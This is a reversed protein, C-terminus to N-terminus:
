MRVWTIVSERVPVRGYKAMQQSSNGKYRAVTISKTNWGMQAAYDSLILDVPIMEGEFRVNDVVFVITAQQSMIKSMSELHKKMDAFYAPIMTTINKNNLQKKSLADLVEVLAPHQMDLDGAKKKVEIHSRLVSHRLKHLEEFNKVFNFCLELSYTRTYDYRNLYPPSTIAITPKNAQKKLVRELSRADGNIIVPKTAKQVPKFFSRLDNEAMHIKADFADIPDQIKKSPLYRLFQGDKATYSCNELISFFLLQFISKLPENESDIVTKMQRLKKLTNDNFAIKMINVDLAVEACNAAEIKNKIKKWRKSLTEPKLQMIKPITKAIHCAIPLRDVGVSPIGMTFATTTTTGMGCFPDIVLQKNTQQAQLVRKVLNASFAEKYRYLRFFPLGGGGAGYAVMKSLKLDDIITGCYSKELQDRMSGIKYNPERNM